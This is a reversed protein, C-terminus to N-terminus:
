NMIKMTKLFTSCGWFYKCYVTYHFISSFQPHFVGFHHKLVLHLVLRKHIEAVKRTLTM